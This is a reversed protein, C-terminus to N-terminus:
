SKETLRAPQPWLLVEIKASERLKGFHDTFYRESLIRRHEGTRISVPTREV